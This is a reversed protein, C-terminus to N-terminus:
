NSEALPQEAYYPVMLYCGTTITEDSLHNIEMVEKVYAQTSPYEATKYDQAIEWLTDGANVEVSTFYKQNVHDSHASVKSGSLLLVISAAALVFGTIIAYLAAKTHRTLLCGLMYHLSRKKAEAEKQLYTIKDYAAVMDADEM